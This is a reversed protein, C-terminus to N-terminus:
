IGLEYKQHSFQFRDKLKRFMVYSHLIRKKKAWVDKFAEIVYQIVVRLFCNWSLKLLCSRDQTILPFCMFHRNGEM